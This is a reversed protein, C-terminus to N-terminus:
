LMVPAFILPVSCDLESLFTDIIQKKETIDKPLGQDSLPLLIFMAGYHRAIPILKEFKVKELSISNILARGPYLRLAAEIVKINSSDICLPLETVRQVEQLVQLMTDKEDIGNMGVNIDLIDAGLESQEVAMQSVLSVDGKKLEEQMVKKGTPNIREGVIMFRRDLDIDVTNRETTLARIHHDKWPQPKLDKVSDVMMKIHNPTSGCCGGIINAGAHVLKIMDAAFQSGPNYTLDYSASASPKTVGSGAFLVTAGGLNVDLKVNKNSQLATFVSQDLAKGSASLDLTVTGGSKGKAKIDTTVKNADVPTSAAARKAIVTYTKTAGSESTCVVSINTDKGAALADGGTVAYNAKPDQTTATVSVKDV